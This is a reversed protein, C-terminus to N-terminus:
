RMCCDNWSWLLHVFDEGTAPVNRWEGWKFSTEGIWHNNNAEPVPYFQSWKYQTKPLTPAVQSTCSAGEGMTQWALGRRHQAALARTALLNTDEPPSNFSSLNGTFPYLNGWGGACWWMDEMPEGANAAVADSMCAAKAVPNAVYAAEPNQYFALEDDAWVPDIESIQILDMDTYGGANCEGAVFLDLMVAAPFAFYHYQYFAKNSERHPAGHGGFQVSDDKLRVGGLSPSCYPTRVLEVLRTPEWLGTALGVEPIGQNDTCHCVTEGTSWAADPAEGSGLKGGAIVIPYMCDWCLENMMSDFVNADPCTPSM